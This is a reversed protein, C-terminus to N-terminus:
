YKCLSKVFTHAALLKLSHVEFLIPHFLLERANPRLEPEKKICQNM